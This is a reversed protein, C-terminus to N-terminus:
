SVSAWMREAAELEEPTWDYYSDGGFLSHDCENCRWGCVDNFVGDLQVIWDGEDEEVFTQRCCDCRGFFPSYPHKIM